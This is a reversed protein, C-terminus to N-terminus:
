SAQRKYSAGARWLRRRGPFRARKEEPIMPATAECPFPTAAACREQASCHGGAPQPQQLWSVPRLSPVDRYGIGSEKSVPYMDSAGRSVNRRGRASGSLPPCPWVMTVPICVYDLSPQCSIRIKIGNGHIPLTSLFLQQEPRRNIEGLRGPGTTPGLM